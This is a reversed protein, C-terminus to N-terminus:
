RIAISHSKRCDKPLTVENIQYGSGMTGRFTFSKLKALYSQGPIIVPFRTEQALCDAALLRGGVKLLKNEDLFPYLQVIKSEKAVSQKNELDKIEQNYYSHQM